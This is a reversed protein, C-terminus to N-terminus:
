SMARVDSSYEARAGTVPPTQLADMLLVWRRSPEGTSARLVKEVEVATDVHVYHTQAAEDLVILEKKYLQAAKAKRSEGRMIAAAITAAQWVERFGVGVGSFTTLEANHVM